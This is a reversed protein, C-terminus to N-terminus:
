DSGFLVKSNLFRDKFKEIEDNWQQILEIDQEKYKELVKKFLLVWRGIEGKKIKLYIHSNIVNNPIGLEIIVQRETTSLKLLHLYWFRQIKPIHTDFDKIHRFHYGILFDHRAIEYFGIIVEDIIKKKM